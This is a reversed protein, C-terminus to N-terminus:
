GRWAWFYLHLLRRCVLTMEKVVKSMLIRKCREWKWDKWGRTPLPAGWFWWTVRGGCSARQRRLTSLLWCQKHVPRPQGLCTTPSHALSSLRFDLWTDLPLALCEGWPWWAGFVPAGWSTLTTSPASSAWCWWSPSSCSVLMSTTTSPWAGSAVMWWLCCKRPTSPMSLSVFAQWSGLSYVRGHCLVRQEKRILVWGSAVQLWVFWIDDSCSSFPEFCVTLFEDNVQYHVVVALSLSLPKGM